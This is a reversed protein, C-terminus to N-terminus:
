GWSSPLRLRRGGGGRAGTGGGSFFCGPSGSSVREWSSGLVAGSRSTQVTAGTEADCCSIGVTQLRVTASARDSRVRLVAPVQRQLACPRGRDEACSCWAAKRGGAAGAM